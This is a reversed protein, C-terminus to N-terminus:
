WGLFPAIDADTVLGARVDAIARTLTEVAREADRASLNLPPTLEIVNGRVLYCVVGLQWMRFIVRRTLEAAATLDEPTRPDILEIGLSLGLGRIELIEPRQQQAERILARFQEGREQANAALGEAEIVNLVALGAAASISNGATTLLTSAPAVDLVWAPGTVASLPLGGGLSKGFTVLDPIVGEHSFGHWKGTRGLGIKVEDCILLAGAAKAREAVGALFGAPPVLVGGDSQMPEVIVAAISGDALARDLASLVTDRTQADRDAEGTAVPFELLRTGEAAPLGDAIFVGSVQQAAGFGGHYGGAFAVVGPRGTAARAAALAASNADTGSHGLIVRQDAPVAAPVISLLKEALATAAPSMASLVSASGGAAAADQVAAVVQPHAHGVGNAGWAASLDLLTRGTHDTVESGNASVISLPFFRLKQNAGILKADRAPLEAQGLGTAVSM